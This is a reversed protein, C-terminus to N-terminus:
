MLLRFLFKNPLIVAFNLLHPICSSLQSQFMKLMLMAAFFWLYMLLNSMLLPLNRLFIHCRVPRKKLADVIRIFKRIEDVCDDQQM